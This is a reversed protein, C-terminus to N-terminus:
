RGNSREAVNAAIRAEIIDARCDRLEARIADTTKAIRDLGAAAAAQDAEIFKLRARTRLLVDAVELAFGYGAHDALDRLWADIEADSPSELKSEAMFCPPCLGFRLVGIWSLQMCRDCAIPTAVPCHHCAGSWKDWPQGCNTCRALPDDRLWIRSM